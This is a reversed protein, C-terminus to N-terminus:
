LEHAAPETKTCVLLFLTQKALACTIIIIIIYCQM